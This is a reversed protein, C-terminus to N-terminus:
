WGAYQDVNNRTVLVSEIRNDFQAPKGGAAMEVGLAIAKRVMEGPSQTATGIFPSGERKLEAVAEPGGDVGTVVVQGTLGAQEVALTAGLAEPDNMGFIGVTDPNATLMDAAIRLGSERDNEGAQIGGIVVGPNEEVAQKCGDIRDIITQIPTGDLLLIKGEGGIQEILYICSIYGAQVADTQFVADAGVAPTDVAIVIIGAAKASELAPGVGDQDVASIVIVDIGQQVFAEIQEIQTALDLGADQINIEAGIEAAAEEGATAMAEFFPNGMTQVLLGITEIQGPAVSSQTETSPAETSPAETTCGILSLAVAGGFAATFLRHLKM